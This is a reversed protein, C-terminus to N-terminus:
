SDLMEFESEESSRWDISSHKRRTHDQKVSSSMSTTNRGDSLLSDMYQDLLLINTVHGREVDSSSMDDTNARGYRRSSGERTSNYYDVDSPVESWQDMSQQSHTKAFTWQNEISQESRTKAFSRVMSSQSNNERHISREIENTVSTIEKESSDSSNSRIEIGRLMARMSDVIQQTSLLESDHENLKPHLLAFYIKYFSDETMSDPCLRARLAALEPALREMSAVHDKQANTMNFGDGTPVPFELWSDPCGALVAVFELLDDSVGVAGRPPSLPQPNTLILIAATETPSEPLVRLSVSFRSLGGRLAGGLEALDSLIGSLIPPSPPLPSPSRRRRPRPLSLRPTHPPSDTHTPALLPFFCAIDLLHRGLESLDDRV